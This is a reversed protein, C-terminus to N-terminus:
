RPGRSEFVWEHADFWALTWEVAEAISLEPRWGLKKLRAAELLILPSDGVWGREGGMYSIQPSVSLHECVLRISSDVDTAEDTGLNYIWVGPEGDHRDAVLRVARVCDGVYVYSKQQKGNGLV